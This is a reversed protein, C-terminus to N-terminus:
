IVGEALNGAETYDAVMRLRRNYLLDIESDTLKRKAVVVDRYYNNCVNTDDWGGLMLDYGYQNIFFDGASISMSSSSKQALGFVGDVGRKVNFGYTRLELQGAGDYSLSYMNWIYQFNEWAFTLGSGGIGHTLAGSLKGWWVYGGGVTNSNCGLSDLNYGTLNTHTGHPKKWYVITWPQNWQLGISSHLNFQLKSIPRSTECWPTVFPAKELMVGSTHIVKGAGVIEIWPYATATTSSYQATTWGRQWSEKAPPIASALTSPAYSLPNGGTTSALLFRQPNAANDSKYYMSVTCYEGAAIPLSNGATLTSAVSAVTINNRVSGYPYVSFKSDVTGGQWGQPAMKTPWLNTAPQGVWGGEEDFFPSTVAAALSRSGEYYGTASGDLPYYYVDSPLPPNEHFNQMAFYDSTVSQKTDERLEKVKLLHSYSKAVTISM